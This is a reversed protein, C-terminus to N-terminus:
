EADPPTAFCDYGDRKLTVCLSVAAHLGDVPGYLLRFRGPRNPSEDIEGFLGELTEAHDQDIREMTAKADAERMAFGVELRWVKTWDEPKVVTTDKEDPEWGEVLLDMGILEDTFGLYELREGYIQGAKRADGPLQARMTLESQVADNYGAQASRWILGYGRLPDPTRGNEGNWYIIGLLYAAEPNDQLAYTQWISLAEAVEAPTGDGDFYLINALKMAAQENGLKGALRYYMMAVDMSQKGGIGLRAMEGLHYLATPNAQDGLRQLLDMGKQTNQNRIADLADEIVLDDASSSAPPPSAPPPSAPPPSAPPPVSEDQAWLGSTLALALAFFGSFFWHVTMKM